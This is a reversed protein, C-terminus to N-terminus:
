VLLSRVAMLNLGEYERALKRLVPVRVGVFVDGEAYEGPGTKFFRQQGQAVSHNGLIKVRMQIECVQMATTHVQTVHADARVRFM